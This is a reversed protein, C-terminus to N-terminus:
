IKEPGKFDIPVIEDGVSVLGEGHGILNQGFM